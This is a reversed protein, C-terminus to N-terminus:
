HDKSTFALEAIVPRHDSAGFDGLATRLAVLEPSHFVYDIRWMPLGLSLIRATFGMGWGSEDHADCLRNTLAAYPSQQDTLNFDGIVIMPTDITELRSLLDQVNADRLDNVYKTSSLDLSRSTTELPMQLHVNFVNVPRGDLDLTVQQARDEGM